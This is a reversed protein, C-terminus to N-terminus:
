SVDSSACRNMGERNLDLDDLMTVMDGGHPRSLHMTQAFDLWTPVYGPPFPIHDKLTVSVPQRNSEIHDLMTVTDGCHPSTTGLPRVDVFSDLPFCRWGYGEVIRCDDFQALVKDHACDYIGPMQILASKGVLHAIPTALVGSAFIMGM